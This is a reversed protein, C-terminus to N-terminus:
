LPLVICFTSGKGIESQVELRGGHAVVIEHSIYLGLGLGDVRANDKTRVRYFRDFLHVQHEPSIGQGEDRVWIALEAKDSDIVPRKEFGVVVPKDPQSYKLANSILNNLVQEIKNTDLTAHSIVGQTAPQVVIPHQDGSILRQQEVVANVLEAVNVNEQPLLELKKNQIRSFDLLQGILANMQDAQRLINGIYKLNREPRSNDAKQLNAQLLAAFGKLSTLPSRLEHSAVSMFLDKLYDLERQTELNKQAQEYLRVNEDYVRAREIAQACLGALTLMFNGEDADFRHPQEFSLGMAGIVQENVKLPLAALAKTRPDLKVAPYDKALVEDSEFLLLKDARIADAIPISATVPFERWPKVLEPDYTTVYGVQVITKDQNLLCVSGAYAGLVSTGQNVILECVEDLTLVSSLAFTLQQLTESRRVAEEAKKRAIVQETVDVGHVLLGDIDGQQNRIAKYSFSLYADQPLGGEERTINPVLTENAVYTVGTRYVADMLRYFPEWQEVSMTEQFPKGKLETASKGMLRLFSANAFEVIFESGRLYCIFAPTEEFLRYIRSESLLEQQLAGEFEVKESMNNCNESQIM